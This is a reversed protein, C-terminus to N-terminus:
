RTEVDTAATAKTAKKARTEAIPEALESEILRKAEDAPVTIVDGTVWSDNGDVRSTLLKVKIKIAAM